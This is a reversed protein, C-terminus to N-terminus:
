MQVGPTAGSERPGGVPAANVCEIGMSNVGGCVCM